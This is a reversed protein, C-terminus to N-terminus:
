KPQTNTPAPIRRIRRFNPLPPFYGQHPLDMHSTARSEEYIEIMPPSPERPPLNSHHSQVFPRDTAFTGPGRWNHNAMGAGAANSRAFLRPSASNSPMDLPPAAHPFRGQRSAGMAWAPSPTSYGIEHARTGHLHETG